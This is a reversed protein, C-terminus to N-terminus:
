GLLKAKSDLPVVTPPSFPSGPRYQKGGAFVRFPATSSTLHLLARLLRDLPQTIAPSFSINAPTDPLDDILVNFQLTRTTTRSLRM